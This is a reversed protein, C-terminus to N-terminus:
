LFQQQKLCYTEKLKLDLHVKYSKFRKLISIDLNKKLSVEDLVSGDPTKVRLYMDTSFGKNKQYDSLGM